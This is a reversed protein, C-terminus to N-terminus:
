SGLSATALPPRVPRQTRASQPPRGYHERETAGRADM